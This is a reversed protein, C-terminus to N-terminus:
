SLLGKTSPVEDAFDRDISVAVRLSRAVAKFIAEIIHHSNEGRIQQVHLNLGGERALAMLFEKCLETDFDGVKPTKLAIDEVLLGRGSIDVAVQILAEDMPLLMSGYRRIGKKDGLASVIAQGLTIAIDEATHHYDVDSDGVCHVNLDFRGHSAFLTLMHNLFGSDTKIDHQGKGDLNLYLDIDTEKTTRKLTCDRM